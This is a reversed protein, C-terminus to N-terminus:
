RSRPRARTRSRCSAQIAISWWSRSRRRSPGATFNAAVEGATLTHDYIRFENYLGDILADGAWQHSRGFWSQKRRVTPGAVDLSQDRRQGGSTNNLYVKATGGPGGTTDNQDYTVVIHHEIGTALPTPAEHRCDRRNGAPPFSGPIRGSGSVGAFGLPTLMLYDRDGAAASIGEGGNSSESILCRAWFRNEEVTAWMEFSAANAQGAQLAATAIGNPLDVYAGATDANGSIRRQEGAISNAASSSLSDWSM